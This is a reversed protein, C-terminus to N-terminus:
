NFWNRPYTNHRLAQLDIVADMVIRDGWFKENKRAHRLLTDAQRFIRRLKEDQIRRFKFVGGLPFNIPSDFLVGQSDNQVSQNIIENNALQAGSHKHIIQIHLFIQRGNFLMSKKLPQKPDNEEHVILDAIQDDNIDVIKIDQKFGTASHTYNLTLVCKANFAGGHNISIVTHAPIIELRDQIIESRSSVVIKETQRPQSRIYTRQTCGSLFFLICCYIVVRM